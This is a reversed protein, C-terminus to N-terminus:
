SQLMRLPECSEDAVFHGDSYSILQFSQGTSDMWICLHGQGFCCKLKVVGCLSVRFRPFLFCHIFSCLTESLGIGKPISLM